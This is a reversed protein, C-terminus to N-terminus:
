ALLWEARQVDDSSDVGSMAPRGRYDVEVCRIRYGNELLRLQELGEHQEYLGQPLAVFANLADRTFGYLGVHRRVPSLADDGNHSRLSAEDRMAPLIQKSFWLADGNDSLLVTTGSFPTTQKQERMLDLEHWRLRVVPTAVDAGSAILGLVLDVVFDPPTLPADGQLNVVYDFADSMLLHAERARDTGTPCDKSTMVSDVPLTACHKQIRDDDTAVVVGVQHNEQASMVADAAHCAIDVVRSLMTQGAIEVLPKGPLRTSGWRAPIVILTDTTM